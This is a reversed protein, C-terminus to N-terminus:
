KLLEGLTPEIATAWRAYGEPSLHLFDPMIKKDLTGDAETLSAGIDLFFVHKGDGLPKILDNVKANKARLQGPKEERPFIALLLIKTEPLQARLERVILAIGTATDVPETNGSNNTGIMVVAVKPAEGAAPKALGELNGSRLRWLVHETRDGGIGLNIAGHKAFTSEWAAKGEGEWGQTISDGIFLLKADGKQAAEKVRANFGEHRQKWWADERPVPTAAPPMKVLGSMSSAELKPGEGEKAPQGAPKADKKEDVPTAVPPKAAPQGTSQASALGATLLLALTATSGILTIGHKM